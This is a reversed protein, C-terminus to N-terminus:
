DLRTIVHGEARLLEILGQRGPLHLAGVAVFVGGRSLLAPLKEMWARNRHDLLQEMMRANSLQHDEGPVFKEALYINLQEIMAIEGREYLLVNTRFLDEELALMQGTSALAKLLISPDVRQFAGIAQEYTELSSVSAGRQMAREMLVMDMAAAGSAAAQLHCAPLALISTLLWPRMNEAMELPMGRSRLALKLGELEVESLRASLPEAALDFAFSPDTAMRAQMASQEDADIEVVLHDASEFTSLMEASLTEMGESAHFTGLLWSPETQASDIRWFRGTSNPVAAARDEAARFGDPDEARLEPVLDAGVCAASAVGAFCWLVAFLIGAQLRDPM